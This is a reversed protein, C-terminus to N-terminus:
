RPSSLHFFLDAEHLCETIKASHIFVGMENKVCKSVTKNLFEHGLSKKLYFAKPDRANLFQHCSQFGNSAM